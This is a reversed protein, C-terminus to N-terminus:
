DGTYGLARLRELNEPDVEIEERRHVRGLEIWPEIGERLEDVLDPHDGALNTREGPDAVVDFLVPKEPLPLAKTVSWILKWKGRRHAVQINHAHEYVFSDRAEFTPAEENRLLPVLSMGDTEHRMEVGVLDALTPVLDVQTVMETRRIGAPFGPVRMLFPIQVQTEYLGPHDYFLGHEGLSEGHDAIVIVVTRGSQDSEDIAEFIKRLERDVNHIEARYMALPWEPDRTEGLWEKLMDASAYKQFFYHDTIKAPGELPNGQYFRPVLDEPPAYPAHPDWYHVWAFYPREPDKRAGFWRLFRSTTEGAALEGEAMAFREFGRWRLHEGLHPVSPFAATEYGSRAFAAPLTDLDQPLPELNNFIGHNRVTLGTMISIHSPNTVNSQAYAAEFLAGTKAFESLNPSVGAHAGYPSLFDRRTTDLTVLLVSTNSPLIPAAREPEDRTCSVLLAVVSVLFPAIPSLFRPSTM